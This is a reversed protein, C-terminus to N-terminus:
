LSPENLFAPKSFHWIHLKSLGGSIMDGFPEWISGKEPNLREIKLSEYEAYSVNSWIEVFLDPQDTGEILELRTQKIIKQMYHLYESRKKTVITYEVLVKCM